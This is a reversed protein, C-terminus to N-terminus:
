IHSWRREHGAIFYMYLHLTNAHIVKEQMYKGVYTLGVSCEHKRLHQLNYM